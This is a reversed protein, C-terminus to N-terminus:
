KIRSWLNRIIENHIEYLKKINQKGEHTEEYRQVIFTLPLFVIFLSGFMISLLDLEAQNLIAIISGLLFQFSYCCLMAPINWLKVTNKLLISILTIVLFGGVFFVVSSLTFLPSLGYSIITDVIWGVYEVKDTNGIILKDFPQNIISSFIRSDIYWETTIDEIKVFSDKDELFSSYIVAYKEGEKIDQIIIVYYESNHSPLIDQIDKQFSQTPVVKSDIVIGSKGVNDLAVNPIVLLIYGIILLVSVLKKLM